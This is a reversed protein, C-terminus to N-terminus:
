LFWKLVLFVITAVSVGFLIVDLMYPTLKVNRVTRIANGHSHRMVQLLRNGITEERVVTYVVQKSKSKKM